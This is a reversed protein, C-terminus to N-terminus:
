FRKRSKKHISELFRLLAAIYAPAADRFSSTAAGRVGDQLHGIEHLLGFFWGAMYAPDIPAHEITDLDIHDNLWVGKGVLAKALATGAFNPDGHRLAMEAIIKLCARETIDLIIGDDMVEDILIGRVFVSMLLYKTGFIVPCSSLGPLCFIEPPGGDVWYVTFPAKVWTEAADLVFTMPTRYQRGYPWFSASAGLEARLAEQVALEEFSSM